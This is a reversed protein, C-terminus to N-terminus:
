SKRTANRNQMTANRVKKAKNAILRSVLCHVSGGDDVDLVLEDLDKFEVVEEPANEAVDIDAPLFQEGKATHSYTREKQQAAITQEHTHNTPCPQLSIQM